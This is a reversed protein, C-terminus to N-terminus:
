KGREHPRPEMSAKRARGEGALRRAKGREHPRPEMSAVTAPISKACVHVKWTRSSTAGNFGSLLGTLHDNM